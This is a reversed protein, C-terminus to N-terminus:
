LVAAQPKLGASTELRERSRRAVSPDASQGTPCSFGSVANPVAAAGSVWTVAHPKSNDDTEFFVGAIIPGDPDYAVWYRGRKLWSLGLEALKAYPRPAPRALAHGLNRLAQPRGKDTYFRELAALHAAAEPTLSIV